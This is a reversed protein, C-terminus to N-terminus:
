SEEIRGTIPSVSITRTRGNLRPQELVVTGEKARGSAFFYVFETAQDATGPIVTEDMCNTTLDDADESIPDPVFSASKIRVGADFSRTGAVECVNPSDPNYKVILYEDTGVNFWAGYVVPSTESRADEQLERMQTVVQNAGGDLSRVFWFHRVAGASLTLLIAALVTVVLVEILTFGTENKM